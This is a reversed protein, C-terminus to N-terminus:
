TQTCGYRGMLVEPTDESFFRLAPSAAVQKVIENM